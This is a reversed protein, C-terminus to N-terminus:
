IIYFFRNIDKWTYFHSLKRIFLLTHIIFRYELKPGGNDYSMLRIDLKSLMQNNDVPTSLIREFNHKLYFTGKNKYVM